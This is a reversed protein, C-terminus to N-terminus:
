YDSLTKLAERAWEPYEDKYIEYNDFTDGYRAGGFSFTCKNIKDYFKLYKVHTFDNDWCWVLAKDPIEEKIERWMEEDWANKMTYSRNDVPNFYKFLGKFKVDFMCYHGESFNATEYKKGPNSALLIALEQKTYKKYERM